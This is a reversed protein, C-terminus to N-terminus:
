KIAVNPPPLEHSAVYGRVSLLVEEGSGKWFLRTFGDVERVVCKKEVEECSSFECLSYVNSSNCLSSLKEGLFWGSIVIIETLVITLYYL